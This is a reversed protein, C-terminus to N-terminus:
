FFTKSEVKNKIHSNWWYELSMQGPSNIFWYEPSNPIYQKKISLTFFPFAKLRWIVASPMYYNQDKSEIINVNAIFKEYTDISDKIKQIKKNRKIALKNNDSFPCNINEYSLIDKMLDNYAMKNANNFLQQHIIDYNNNTFEKVSLPRNIYIQQDYKLNVNM